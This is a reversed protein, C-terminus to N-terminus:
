QGVHVGEQSAAEEQDEDKPFPWILKAERRDYNGAFSYIYNLSSPCGQPALLLTFVFFSPVMAPEVVGDGFWLRGHNLGEGALVAVEPDFDEAEPNADEGYKQKFKSVYSTCQTESQPNVWVSGTEPHPTKRRKMKKLV